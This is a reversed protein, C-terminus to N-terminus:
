PLIEVSIQGLSYDGRKITWSFSSPAEAGSSKGFLDAFHLVKERWSRGLRFAPESCELSLPEEPSTNGKVDM